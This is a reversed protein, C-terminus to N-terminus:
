TTKAMIFSSIAVVTNEQGGFQLGTATLNFLLFLLADNARYLWLLVTIFFQVLYILPSRIRKPAKSTNMEQIKQGVMSPPICFVDLYFSEVQNDISSPAFHSHIMKALDCPPPICNSVSNSNRMNPSRILNAVGELDM